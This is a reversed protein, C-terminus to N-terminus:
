SPTAPVLRGPRLPLPVSAYASGGLAPMIHAELVLNNQVKGISSRLLHPGGLGPTARTM